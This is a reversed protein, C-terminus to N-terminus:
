PWQGRLLDWRKPAAWSGKGRGAGRERRRCECTGSSIRCRRLKNSSWPNRQRTLWNNLREQFVTAL